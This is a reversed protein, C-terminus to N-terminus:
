KFNFRHPRSPTIHEEAGAGYAMAEITAASAPM